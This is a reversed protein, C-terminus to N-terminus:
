LPSDRGTDKQREMPIDVEKHPRSLLLEKISKGKKRLIGGYEDASVIYVAPRGNRTVLQASGAMANAVVESFKDKATHLPWAQVGHSM